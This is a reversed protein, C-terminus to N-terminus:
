HRRWRPHVKGINRQRFQTRSLWHSEMCRWLKDWEIWIHAIEYCGYRFPFMYLHTKAFKEDFCVSTEARLQIISHDLRLIKYEFFGEVEDIIYEFRYGHLVCMELPCVDCGWFKYACHDIALCEDSRFVGLLDMLLVRRLFMRYTFAVSFFNDM